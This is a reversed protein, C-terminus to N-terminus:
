GYLFPTERQKEVVPAERSEPNIRMGMGEAFIMVAKTGEIYAARVRDDLRDWEPIARETVVSTSGLASRFAAFFTQAAWLNVDPM